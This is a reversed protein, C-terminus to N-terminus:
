SGGGAGDPLVDRGKDTAEDALAAREELENDRTDWGTFWAARFDPVGLPNSGRPVGEDRAKRGAADALSLVFNVHGGTM